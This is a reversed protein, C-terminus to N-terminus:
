AVMREFMNASIRNHAAVVEKLGKDFKLSPDDDLAADVGSAWAAPTPWWSVQRTQVSHGGANMSVITQGDKREVKKDTAVHYLGCILEMEGVSIGLFWYAYSSQRNTLCDAYEPIGDRFLEFLDDLNTEPRSSLRAILGGYQLGLPARRTSFFDYNLQMEYGMYDDVDPAFDAARFGLGAHIDLPVRSPDLHGAPEITENTLALRFAMGRSVLHKALIEITPGWGQRLIQFVDTPSAILLVLSGIRPKSRERFVYYSVRPEDLLNGTTMPHSHEHQNWLEEYTIAFHGHGLQAYTPKQHFDLVKRDILGVHHTEPDIFQGFFIQMVNTVEATPLGVLRKVTEPSPLRTPTRWHKQGSLGFRYYLARELTPTERTIPEYVPDYDPDSARDTQYAPLTNKVSDHSAGLLDTLMEMPYLVGADQLFEEEEEADMPAPEDSGWKVCLDWEGHPINRTSEFRRPRFTARLGQYRTYPRRQSSHFGPPVSNFSQLIYPKGGGGNVGAFREEGRQLWDGTRGRGTPTSSSTRSPPMPQMEYTLAWEGSLYPCVDDAAGFGSGGVLCINSHQRITRYLHQQAPPHHPVDAARAPPLGRLLPPRRRTRTRWNRLSRRAKETSPIGAAVCLGEIPLGERRMEQWLPLRHVFGGKVTSPTMGAAMIPPKGLLRLFPTDIYMTGDSTKVSGSAFRKSWWEEYKVNQSNYLEADGKARDAVVIVCGGRGDLNRATLPRIGSLGGPGFDVAHTASEPFNTTASWHIPQTFIQDCLSRTISTSEQYPFRHADETNYVPIQLGEAKWLDVGGLDEEMVKDTAGALYAPSKRLSTVLGYLSRAPVTVVFARPGNHIEPLHTNTKKIHAELEILKLGTVSLMPSPAGEGGRLGSFFLWKIAKLANATFSEFTASASIAVASVIGQSHGTAGSIADRFQGPTLGSVNCAVLYQVLQTLGILPFSVPVSALYTTSPRATAGSLWSVVDLGFHYHATSTQAAALRILADTTVTALFSSLFPKYTDYLSQLGDFYVEDTGQGGFLAFVSVKGAAVATLLAPHPLSLLDATVKSERLAALALLYSALVAKRVEIDYSAALSHIDKTHLYATTFHKFTHAAASKPIQHLRPAVYGFFHAALEVTAEAKNELQATTDIADLLSRIQSILPRM